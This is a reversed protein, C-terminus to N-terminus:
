RLAIGTYELLSILYLHIAFTAIVSIDRHSAWSKVPILRFICHPIWITVSRQFCIRPCHCLRSQELVLYWVWMCLAHSHSTQVPSCQVRGDLKKHMSQTPLSFLPTLAPSWKKASYEVFKYQVGSSTRFPLRAITCHRYLSARQEIRCIPHSNESTTFTHLSRHCNLILM